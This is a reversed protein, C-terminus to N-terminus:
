VPNDDFCKNQTAHEDWYYETTKILLDSVCCIRKMEVAQKLLDDKMIVNEWLDDVDCYIDKYKCCSKMLVDNKARSQKGGLYKLVLHSKTLSLM